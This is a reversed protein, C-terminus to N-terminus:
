RSGTVAPPSPPQGHHNWGPRRRLRHRTQHPAPVPSQTRRYASRAVLVSRHCPAIFPPFKWRERRVPLLLAAGEHCLEPCAYRTSASAAAAPPRCATNSPASSTPTTTCRRRTAPRRPRPRNWSVSPRTKPDNLESFGNAIERGVIFLELARHNRTPTSARALPSVEVPYDIIFTPEWLEAEACAEFLQLQLPAWAAPKVPEGFAKIKRPLWNTPWNPKQFGPHYKQIAEVITLRHFPKSLDLVRGRYTFVETGLAERAAHRLLGETFDM